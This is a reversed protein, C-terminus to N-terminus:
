STLVGPPFSFQITFFISFCARLLLSISLPISHVAKKVNVQLFSVNEVFDINWGAEIQGWVHGRM